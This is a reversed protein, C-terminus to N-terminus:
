GDFGIIPWIGSKSKWIRRTAPAQAEAHAQARTREHEHKTTNANRIFSGAGAGRRGAAAGAVPFQPYKPVAVAM